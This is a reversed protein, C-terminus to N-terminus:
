FKLTAVIVFVTLILTIFTDTGEISEMKSATKAYSAILIYRAPIVSTALRDLQTIATLGPEANFIRLRNM